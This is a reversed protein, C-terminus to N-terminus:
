PSRPSSQSRSFSRYACALRLRIDRTLVKKVGDGDESVSRRAVAGVSSGSASSCLDRLDCLLGTNIRSEDHRPSNPHNHVRLCASKASAASRSGTAGVRREGRAPITSHGAARYAVLLTVLRLGWFVRPENPPLNERCESRDPSDAWDSSDANVVVRGTWVVFLGTDVLFEEAGIRQSTRAREVAGGVGRCFRTKVAGVAATSDPHDSSKTVQRFKAGVTWCTRREV